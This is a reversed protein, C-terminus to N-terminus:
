MPRYTMTVNMTSRAHVRHHYLQGISGEGYAPALNWNTSPQCPDPGMITNQTFAYHPFTLTDNTLALGFRFRGPFSGLATNWTFDFTDGLRGPALSLDAVRLLYVDRAGGSLNQLSMTVQAAGPSSGSAKVQAISQTLEWMGDTTARVIKLKTPSVKTAVPPGWNGSDNYFYDYYSRSGTLDCIGYGEVTGFGIDIYETDSPRSFQVINGSTSVCYTTQNNGSGSSFPYFSCSSGGTGSGPMEQGGPEQGFALTSFAFVLAFLISNRHM